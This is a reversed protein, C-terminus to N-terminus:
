QRSAFSLSFPLDHCKAVVLVLLIRQWVHLHHTPHLDLAFPFPWQSRVVSFFHRILCIGRWSLLPTDVVRICHFLWAATIHSFHHDQCVSDLHPFHPCCLSIKVCCILWFDAQSSRGLCHIGIEVMGWWKDYEYHSMPVTLSSHYPLFPGSM